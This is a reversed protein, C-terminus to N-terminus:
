NISSLVAGIVSTYTWGKETFGMAFQGRPAIWADPTLELFHFKGDIFRGDVRCYNYGGYGSLFSELRERDEKDLESDINRVTRGPTRILKEKADFLRENFFSPDGDIVIESFAWGNDGANEIRAYAVERGYVFEEILVPQRFDSLLERTLAAAGALTTVRNRQTIGISSGEMLPKVVFPLKIGVAYRLQQEDRIVRWAPTRLGYDSALRKSIEKDQAIVRGYVDPGIFKLGFSECIAPILAMRNRSNQGGYITLVVDDKHLHARRALAAPGDYHHVKLGLALIASRLSNITDTDTMELDHREHIPGTSAMNDLEDAVVVVDRFRFKPDKTVM